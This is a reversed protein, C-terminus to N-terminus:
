AARRMEARASRKAYYFQSIAEAHMAMEPTVPGTRFECARPTLWVIGAIHRPTQKRDLRGIIANEIREAISKYDRM